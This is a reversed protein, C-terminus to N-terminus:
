YSLAKTAAKAANRAMRTRAQKHARRQTQTAHRLGRERKSVKYSM